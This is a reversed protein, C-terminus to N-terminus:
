NSFTPINCIILPLKTTCSPQSHLSLVSRGTSVTSTQKIPAASSSIENGSHAETKLLYEKTENPSIQDAVLQTQISSTGINLDLSASPSKPRITNETSDVPSSIQIVFCLTLIIAFIRIRTYTKLM